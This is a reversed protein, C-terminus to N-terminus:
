YIRSIGPAINKKVESLTELCESFNKVLTSSQNLQKQFHEKM